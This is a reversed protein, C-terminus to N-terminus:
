RKRLDIERKKKLGFCKQEQSYLFFSYKIQEKPIKNAQYRQM